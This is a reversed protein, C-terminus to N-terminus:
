PNGMDMPRKRTPTGLGNSQPNIAVTSRNMGYRPGHNAADMGQARAKATSGPHPISKPVRPTNTAMSSIVYLRRSGQNYPDHVPMEGMAMKPAATKQVHSQPGM